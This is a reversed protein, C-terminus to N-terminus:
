DTIIGCDNCEWSFGPNFSTALNVISGLKPHTTSRNENDLNIIFLSFKEDDDLDEQYVDGYEISWKAVKRKEGKSPLIVPPPSGFDITTQHSYFGLFHGKFSRGANGQVLSLLNRIAPLSKKEKNLNM